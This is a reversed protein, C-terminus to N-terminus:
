FLFPLFRSRVRGEYGAYESFRARLWHEELKAKAYFFPVMGLALLLAIASQWILAWGMSVLLVSTYLPHRVWAYIGHQVLESGERPKPFATRNGKLAAVGALGFLAGLGILLWGVRLTFTGLESSTGPAVGIVTLMLISQVVVWVGGRECFHTVSFACQLRWAVWSLGITAFGTATAAPKLTASLSTITMVGLLFAIPVWPWGTVRVSPGERLRLRILGVVTAATSLGLTCGIYTLFWEFSASWLMALSVLAQAAIAARPPGGKMALSRPLYGDAAMQAYVRPGAMVQASASSVLVLAVLSSVAQGWSSGGLAQAAVRAIDPKGALEQIPAAYVFLGNVGLYLVMVLVTGLLMARPTTREPLQLEGAIYIAANWGSYSFSVWMMSLAFASGPITVAPQTIPAKMRTFALAGFGVLLGIKLLVTANQLWAGREVHLAHVLSLVLILVTGSMRPPCSPWWAKSYEGFAYAAFALPASFGVLFSLWGAVYGASPHLTRSLFIYEGGSEPIRRVLAGYSLAGLCALIGGAAWVWLVNAPSKLDALLFGSTTFIGTGVMSAIVLATATGLGLRPREAAPSILASSANPERGRSNV